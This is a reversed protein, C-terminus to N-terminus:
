QDGLFGSRIAKLSSLIPSVGDASIRYVSAFVKTSCHDECWLACSM